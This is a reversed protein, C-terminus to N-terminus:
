GPLNLTRGAYVQENDNVARLPTTDPYCFREAIREWSDGRAVEYGIAIGASNRATVYGEARLISGRDYGVSECAIGETPTGNRIFCQGNEIDFTVSNVNLYEGDWHQFASLVYGDAGFSREAEILLDAGLEPDGMYNASWARDVIECATAWQDPTVAAVRETWAAHEARAAIQAETLTPTPDPAPVPTYTEEAVPERTQEAAAQPGPIFAGALPFSLAVLGAVAVGAAALLIKEGRNM